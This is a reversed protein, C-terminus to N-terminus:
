GDRSHETQDSFSQSHVELEAGLCKKMRQRMKWQLQEKEQALRGRERAQSRVSDELRLLEVDLRRENNRQPYLVTQSFCSFVSLKVKVDLLEKLDEVQHTLSEVKRQSENLSTVSQNLNEKEQRASKLEENKMEVVARLSDIEQKLEKIFDEKLDSGTMLNDVFAALKNELQEIKNQLKSKDHEHSSQLKEIREEYNKIVRNLEEAHEEEVSTAASVQVQNLRSIEAEHDIKLQSLKKRNELKFTELSSQHAQRCLHRSSSSM